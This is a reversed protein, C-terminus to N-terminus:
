DGELKKRVARELSLPKGWDVGALTMRFLVPLSLRVVYCGEEMRGPTPVDDFHKKLLELTAPTILVPKHPHFEGNM